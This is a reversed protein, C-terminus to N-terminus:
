LACTRGAQGTATRWGVFAAPDYPREAFYLTTGDAWRAARLGTCAPAVAAPGTGMLKSMAVVAGPEARGFGIERGTGGATIGGDTFVPDAVKEIRGAPAPSVSSPASGCAALVLCGAALAPQLYPIRRAPM